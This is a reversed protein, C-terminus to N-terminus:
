KAHIEYVASIQKVVQRSDFLKHVVVDDVRGKARLRWFSAGGSVQFPSLVVTEEDPSEDGGSKEAVNFPIFSKLRLEVGFTSEYFTKQRFLDQVAAELLKSGLDPAPEYTLVIDTITVNAVGALANMVRDGDGLNALAVKFDTRLALRKLKPIDIANAPDEFADAYVPALDPLAAKIADKKDATLKLLEGFTRGEIEIAGHITAAKPLLTATASAALNVTEPPEAILGRLDEPSGSLTAAAHLCVPAALAGLLLLLKANMSLLPTRPRSITRCSRARNM